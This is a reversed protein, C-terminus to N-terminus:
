VESKALGYKELYPKAKLSGFAGPYVIKSLEVLAQRAKAEDGHIKWYWFLGYYMTNCELEVRKPRDLVSKKMLPIDIFEEPKVMGKYLRVTRCYGFDMQPPEVKGDIRELSREASKYDGLEAYTTYLWHVLPYQEKPDTYKFCEEFDQISGKLDGHLNQTTARYYWYIWNDYDLQLSMTYDAMAAWYRGNANNRGARGFYNPAYFPNCAIGHSYAEFAEEGRKALTLAKAYVYWHYPDTDDKGILAEGEEVTPQMMLMYRMQNNREENFVHKM